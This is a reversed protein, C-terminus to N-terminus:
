SNRRNSGTRGQDRKPMFPNTMQKKNSVEYKKTKTVIKDDLKLGSVIEINTDDSIGTEIYKRESSKGDQSLVMVYQKGKKDTYVLEQPLSTVNEKKNQIIEVSASMGSRFVDPVKKPLIYVKYTTVNNVVESEYAIQDVTGEVKIDPYADLTIVSEQGLKVKGIDTEDVDAKVVLRDSLVFVVTQNTVTQGPEVGRVIVTGNLPAVLPTPKYVDRWVNEENKGQSRAADLLAARETSSMIALVQGQKVTDGENVYIEEIRGSIQPIVELRNEPEITGTTLIKSEITLVSPSYTTTLDKGYDKSKHKKFVIFLLLIILVSLIIWKLKSKM